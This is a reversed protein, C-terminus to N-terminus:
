VISWNFQTLNFHREFAVRCDVLPPFLWHPVRQGNVTSKHSTLGPLLKRLAIGLQTSSARDNYVGRGIRRSFETYDSVVRQIPQDQQWGANGPVLLGHQLKELLWKAPLDMGELKQHQLAQTNPIKRISFASLDRHQLDFLMAELGGSEMEAKLEAFYQENGVVRDSVEFVAYRREDRGAPVVWDENSTMIIHLFNRAQIADRGKGEIMLVPETILGKLVNEARKDGAWVAEDAYLLVCDRLHSNFEGTLHKGSFVQIGHQGFIKTLWRAVVGKGAGRAGKLVLAVEGPRDPYQIAHAMWGLVYDYHDRNGQCIVQFIHTQAKSWNGAKSSVALGRWLNYTDAATQRGPAFSISKYSRRAPHCLWERAANKPAAQTSSQLLDNAHLLLFDYQSFRALRFRSFDSDIEESFIRTQGSEHAVFHTKNYRDIHAPLHMVNNTRGLQIPSTITGWHPCTECPTPNIARFHKCKAPGIGKEELQSLKRIMEREDFNPYKESIQRAAKLPDRCHRAIQLGAYWAPESQAGSLALQQIQPCGLLIPKFAAPIQSSHQRSKNDGLDIEVGFSASLNEIAEKVDKWSYPGADKVLVVPRPTEKKYNNTGVVRLVSSADATRTPDIKLGYALLAEKFQAAVPRWMAADVERTFPWYLHLGGGSNVILPAPFSTDRCFARVAQFAEAQSAYKRADDPAVDIDAFLSKLARINSGVRVEWKERKENYVKPERLAGLGFYCEKKEKDIQLAQKAAQEFSECVYHAFGKGAPKALVILGSPLVHELFAKPEM